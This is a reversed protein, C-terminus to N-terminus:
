NPRQIKILKFSQILINMDKVLGDLFKDPLELTRERPLTKSSILFCTEMFISDKDIYNHIVEIRAEKYLIKLQRYFTRRNEKKTEALITEIVTEVNSYSVLTGGLDFLVGKDNKKIARNKLERKKLAGGREQNGGLFKPATIYYEVLDRTIEYDSSEVFVSKPPKVNLWGQQKLSNAQSALKGTSKGIITANLALPIDSPYNQLIGIAINFKASNYLM